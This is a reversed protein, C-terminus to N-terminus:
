AALQMAPTKPVVVASFGEMDKFQRSMELARQRLYPSVSFYKCGSFDYMGVTMKDPPIAQAEATARETWADVTGRSQDTFRFDMIQGHYLRQFTLGPALREVVSAGEQVAAMM